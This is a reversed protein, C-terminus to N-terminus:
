NDCGKSYSVLGKMTSTIGCNKLRDIEVGNLEYRIDQFLYAIGNNVFTCEKNITGEVLLQSQSPLVMLDQRNICINIVDNNKFSDNYPNYPHVEISEISDDFAVQEGIDIINATATSM